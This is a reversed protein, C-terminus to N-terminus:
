TARLARGLVMAKPPQPRWTRIRLPCVGCAHPSGFPCVGCAHLRPVRTGRSMGREVKLVLSGMVGVEGRLNLSELQEHEVTLVRRIASPGGPYGTAIKGNPSPSM